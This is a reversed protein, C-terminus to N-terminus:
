PSTKPEARATIAKVRNSEVFSVVSGRRYWVGRSDEWAADVDAETGDNMEIVTRITADESDDKRREGTSVPGRNLRAAVKSETTTPPEPVGPDETIEGAESDDSVEETLGAVSRDDTREPGQNRSPQRNEPRSVVPEQRSSDDEIALLSYGVYIAACILIGAMLGVIGTFWATRRDASVPEPHPEILSLTPDALLTQGDSECFNQEADYVEYCEPCRKMMAKEGFNKM